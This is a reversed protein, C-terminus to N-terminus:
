PPPAPSNHAPQKPPDHPHPNLHTPTSTPTAHFPIYCKYQQPTQVKKWTKPPSHSIPNSPPNYPVPLAIPLPAPHPHPHPILRTRSTRTTPLSPAHARIPGESPSSTPPFVVKQAPRAEMGMGVFIEMGWKSPSASVPPFIIPSMRLPLSPLLDDGLIPTFDVRSLIAM